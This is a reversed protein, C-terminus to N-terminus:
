HQQPRLKLRNVSFVFSINRENQFNENHRENITPINHM